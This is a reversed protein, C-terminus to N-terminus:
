QLNYPFNLNSIEMSTSKLNKKWCTGPAITKYIDVKILIVGSIEIIYGVSPLVTYTYYM